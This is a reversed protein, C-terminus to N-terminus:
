NQKHKAYEEGITKYVDNDINQKYAKNLLKNKCLKDFCDDNNCIYTGRGNAKGTFDVSFNDEFKVIRILEKKPKTEKCAICMRLPVKKNIM